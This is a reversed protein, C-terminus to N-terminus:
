RDRLWWEFFRCAQANSEETPSHGERNTMAVRNERGLLRNVAIAHNLAPWREPLDASGGSVLFPRPAMLAHLEVLDHGSELLTKYAGLRGRAPLAFYPDRRDAGPPQGLEFGLYSDAWYNVAGRPNQKSRDREDFVIGPDSWVACAFRDDLAGAFLAWKGGFSHGIVGIRNARVDPRRALLGRANAALYALASLPQIKLPKGAPGYYPDGRAERPNDLLVQATPKGISLTVFGKRALQLGFDLREGGLGIGSQAEYFLVLVAPFPGKGPPVLLFGTVPEGDIAIGLQLRQQTINERRTTEVIEIRPNEILPPWTGLAGQWVDLIEQRRRPWDAASAVRSGDAFLLPSRFGGLAGRFEPPPTFFPAIEAPPAADGSVGPGACGAVLLLAVANRILRM